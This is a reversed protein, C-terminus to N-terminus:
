YYYVYKYLAMLDHNLPLPFLFSAKREDRQAYLQADLTVFLLPRWQFCKAVDVMALHQCSYVSSQGQKECEIIKSTDPHLKKQETLNIHQSHM